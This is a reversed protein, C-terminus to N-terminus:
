RPRFRVDCLKREAGGLAPILIIEEHDPFARVFAISRSDPSFVPYIEEYQTNTLRVPDGTGIFKVYIGPAEGNIGSWVFVIQKGDPSFSPMDERGPQGTFPVVRAALIARPGSGTNRNLYFLLATTIAAALLGTLVLPWFLGSRRVPAGPLLAM